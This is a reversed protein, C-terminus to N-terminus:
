WSTQKRGTWAKSCCPFSISVQFVNVNHGHVSATVLLTGSADWQLVLLPATHARFHAVVARSVVDRVMVTGVVDSDSQM